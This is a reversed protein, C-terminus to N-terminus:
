FVDIGYRADVRDLQEDLASVLIVEWFRRIARATQRQRRLWALMTMGNASSSGDQPRGGSRAIKLMARGIASKDTWDLLPFRAFSLALHLPAPLRSSEMIGRRGDPAAFELRNFFQIKDSAGM